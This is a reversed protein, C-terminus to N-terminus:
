DNLFNQLFIDSEYLEELELYDADSLYRGLDDNAAPRFFIVGVVLSAAVGLATLGGMARRKIAEANKLSGAKAGEFFGEPITYPTNNM